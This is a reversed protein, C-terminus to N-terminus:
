NNEVPELEPQVKIVPDLVYEGNANVSLSGLADFNLTISLNHDAVLTQDTDIILGSNHSYRVNLMQKLGDVIVFNNNGLELKIQDIKGPKLQRDDAILAPDRRLSLLEYVAPNTKMDVWTGGRTGEYHIMVSKLDIYVGQYVSVYDRPADTLKVQMGAVSVGPETATTKEAKMFSPEYMAKKCNAFVLMLVVMVGIVWFIKKM